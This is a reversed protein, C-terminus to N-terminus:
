TEGDQKPQPRKLVNCRCVGAQAAHARALTCSLCVSGADLHKVEGCGECEQEYSAEM